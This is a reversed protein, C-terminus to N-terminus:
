NVIISTYGCNVWMYYERLFLLVARYFNWYITRM